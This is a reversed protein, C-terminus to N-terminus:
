TRAKGARAAFDPLAFSLLTSRLAEPTDVPAACSTGACVYALPAGGKAPSYQQGGLVSDSFLVLTGPRYTSVGAQFLEQTRRDSRKGAIVVKAPPNLHYYVALAYTSAYYGHKASSGAFFKLAREATERMSQDGLILSLRDLYLATLASTAPETSDLYRKRRQAAFPTEDNKGATDYFGGREKDEYNDVISKAIAVAEDIYRKEGTAELAALCALGVWVQDELLGEIMPRGYSFTHFVGSDRTRMNSLVFDLARLAKDKADRLGLVKYADLYAVCAAGNADAYVTRDVAPAPRASRAEFLHRKGSALLASVKEVSIGLAEAVERRSKCVRLVNKQPLGQILCPESEVSYYLHLLNFEEEPLAKRMEEETWTYYGEGSEPSDADQSAFFVGSDRDLLNSDIYSIVSLAVEKFQENGTAAFVSLYLSLLYSNSRLIKEFHPVTWSPDVSYRHFGGGLQDHIGGSAMKSLTFTVAHLLRDNKYYYAAALALQLVSESTFKPGTQTLGGNEGDLNTLISACAAIVQERSVAGSQVEQEVSLLRRRIARSLDVLGSREESSYAQAVKLLLTKLGATGYRNERPVYTAGLFPEGDPLLFVTLPWGGAGTLASVASQYRWDIDPRHDRDVKIPVFYSNILAAVESDEYSEEDMVHCWHCWAAGIDLLIPRDLKRALSFAEQSWEQWFVPQSAASRLYASASEGLRNKLQESM